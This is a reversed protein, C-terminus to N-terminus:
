SPRDIGEIKGKFIGNLNEGNNLKLQYEIIHREGWKSVKIAGATVYFAEKANTQDIFIKGKSFTFPQNSSSSFHYVGPTIGKISNSNINFNIYNLSYADANSSTSGMYVDYGTSVGEPKEFKDAYAHQVAHIKGKYNFANSLRPRTHFAFIGAVLCALFLIKIYSRM